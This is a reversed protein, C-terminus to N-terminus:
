QRSRPQERLLYLKLNDLLWNVREYTIGTTRFKYTSDQLTFIVICDEIQDKQDQLGQIIAELGDAALIEKVTLKRRPLKSLKKIM